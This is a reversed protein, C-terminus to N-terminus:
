AARPSIAAFADGPLGPGLIGCDVVYEAGDAEDRLVVLFAPMGEEQRQEYANLVFSTATPDPHRTAPGGAEPRRQQALFPGKEVTQKLRSGPEPFFWGDPLWAPRNASM